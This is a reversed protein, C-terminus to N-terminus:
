IGLDLWLLIFDNKSSALVFIFCDRAMNRLLLLFLPQRVYSFSLAVYGMLIKFNFLSDYSYTRVKETL